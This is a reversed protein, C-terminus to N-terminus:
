LPKWSPGRLRYIRTLSLVQVEAYGLTRAVSDAATVMAPTWSGPVLCHATMMGTSFEFTLRGSAPAFGSATPAPAPPPACEMPALPTPTPTPDPM